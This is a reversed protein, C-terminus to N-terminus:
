YDRDAVLRALALLDEAACPDPHAAALSEAAADVCRRVEAVAWRRGGAEEVLDALEAPETHQFDDGCRYLRALRDAAPTDTALAAAVPLTKKRRILDSYAPKGTIRPDGWIGLVDDVLQFALGLMRGFSRYLGADAPDGGTHGLGALAGLECACGMLAGTKGDAMAVCGVLSAESETEFRLDADQGACLRLVAGSLVPGLPGAGLLNSALALLTDGALIAPGVGFASWATERGRRFRDGDMIDDHILSFDHVLEVAVAPTVGCSVAEPGGAARACCLALAIRYAKGRQECPTADADWWGIHYGAIHRMRAPLTDVAARHRSEVIRRCESLVQAATRRTPRVGIQQPFSLCTPARAAM